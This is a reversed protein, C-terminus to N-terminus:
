GMATFEAKWPKRIIGELIAVSHELPDNFVADVFEFSKQSYRHVAEDIEDVVDSPRRLRLKNGELSQNYTCYICRQRCGRKSQISYSGGLEKYPRMDIWEDLAPHRNLLASHAPKTLHFKGEFLMGVGPMNWPTEGKEIAHLLASFSEEGDSVVIYDAHCERMVEEPMLSAGSGGVVIPVTTVERIQNILRVVEPFYPVPYLMNTNDINRISIGIINPTHSKIADLLVRRPDNGTFCLDLAKVEHGADKAAEAVYCLGIPPATLLDGKRNSNILLVRM